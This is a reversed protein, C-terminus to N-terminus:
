EKIYQTLSNVPTVELSFSVRGFESLTFGSFIHDSVLDSSSLINSQQAIAEYSEAEGNMQIAGSSGTYTFDSYRVGPITNAELFRFIPASVKHQTFIGEALRLQQDTNEIQELSTVDVVQQVQALTSELEAVDRAVLYQFAYVGGSFLAGILFIFLGIYFIFPTGKKNKPASGLIGSKGAQQAPNKQVFSTKLSTDIQQPTMYLSCINSLQGSHSLM